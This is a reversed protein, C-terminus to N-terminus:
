SDSVAAPCSSSSLRADRLIGARAERWLGLSKLRHYLTVLVVAVFGVVLVPRFTAEHNM